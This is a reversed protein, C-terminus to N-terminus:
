GEIIREVTQVSEATAATGKATIQQLRELASTAGAGVLAALMPLPAGASGFGASCDLATATAETTTSAAGVAEGLAGIETLGLAFHSSTRRMMLPVIACESAHPVSASQVCTNVDHPNFPIHPTATAFFDSAFILAAMSGHFAPLQTVTVAAGHAVHAIGDAGFHM